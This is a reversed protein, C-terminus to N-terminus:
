KILTEHIHIWIIKGKILKLISSTKIGKGKKKGKESWSQWEEYQALFIQPSLKNLKIKKITIKFDPSSNHDKFIQSCLKNKSHSSSDPFIIQFTEDLHNKILKEFTNKDKTTVGRYWNVFEKHIRKIEFKVKDEM